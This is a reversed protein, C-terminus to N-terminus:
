SEIVGMGQEEQQPNEVMQIGCPILPDGGHGDHTGAGSHLM